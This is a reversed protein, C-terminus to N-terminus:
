MLALQERAVPHGLAAAKSRWSLATDFCQTVGTGAQYLNALHQMADAHGQAAALQLYHLALEHIGQELMLLAFGTQAVADGGDALALLAHDDTEMDGDGAQLRFKCREAVEAVLLMVRGDEDKPLTSLRGDSLYRWLTRKSVGMLLAATDINIVPEHNM